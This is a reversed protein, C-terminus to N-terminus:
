IQKRFSLRSRYFEEVKNCFIGNILFNEICVRIIKACVEYRSKAYEDYM